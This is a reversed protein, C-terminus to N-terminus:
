KSMLESMAYVVCQISNTPLTENFHIMIENTSCLDCLWFLTAAAKHFSVGFCTYNIHKM